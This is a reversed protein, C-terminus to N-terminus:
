EIRTKESFSAREGGTKMQAMLLLTAQSSWAGELWKETMAVFAGHSIEESTKGLDTYATGCRRRPRAM